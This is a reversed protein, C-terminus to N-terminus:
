IRTLMLISSVGPRDNEEFIMRCYASGEMMTQFLSHYREESEQLSEEAKTRETIDRIVSVWGTLEGEDSLLRAVTHETAFITGDKRKM